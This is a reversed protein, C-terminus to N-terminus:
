LKRSRRRLLGLITLGSGLIALTAPEPVPIESFDQKIATLSTTGTFGIVLADKLVSLQNTPAFAVHDTPTGPLAAQLTSGNSLTEGVLVSGNGTVGGAIALYADDIKATPTTVTFDLTVDARGSGVISLAATSFLLGFSNAPPNADAAVHIQGPLIGTASLFSFNSYTQDGVTCSFGSVPFNAYSTGPSSACPTASAASAWLLPAGLLATLSKRM